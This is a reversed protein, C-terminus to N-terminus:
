IISEGKIRKSAINSGIVLVMSIVSNFLGVATSYGYNAQQLGIKYTYTQIVEAVNIVSSNQLVFVSEFLNMIKALNLVLVILITNSIAPLTVHLTQKWRGAGDMSAAEYLDPNIGALAALYIVTGWGTEKWRGIFIYIGTWWRENALFYIPKIGFHSIVANVVGFQPSLILTFISATVVWSIFYPMYLVTQTFSKFLKNALENMLLAFVVSLFTGLLLNVLSLFLTNRFANWFMRSTFLQQFNALGVWTKPRFPTFDYFAYRIGFMPVYNFIVLLIIVPALMLYFYRYKYIRKRLRRREKARDPRPVTVNSDM